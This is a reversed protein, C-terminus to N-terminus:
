ARAAKIAFPFLGAIHGPRLLVTTEKISCCKQNATIPLAQNNQDTVSSVTKM